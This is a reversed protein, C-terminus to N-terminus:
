FMCIYDEHEDDELTMSSSDDVAPLVGRAAFAIAALMDTDSDHQM